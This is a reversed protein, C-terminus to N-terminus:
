GRFYYWLVAALGVPAGVKAVMTAVGVWWLMTAMKVLDDADWAHPYEEKPVEHGLFECLPRWGDRAEFELLKGKPVIRRVLENHEDFRRM